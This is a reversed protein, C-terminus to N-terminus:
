AVDFTGIYRSWNGFADFAAIMYLHAGATSRGFVGSGANMM